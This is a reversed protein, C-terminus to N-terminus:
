STACAVCQLLWFKWGGSASPPSALNTVTLLGFKPLGTGTSRALSTKNNRLRQLASLGGGSGSARGPFGKAALDSTIASALIVCLVATGISSGAQGVSKMATSTRAIAALPVALMAATMNPMMALGMGIGQVFSVGALLVYSTHPGVFMFPVLGLGVVPLGTASLRPAPSSTKVM